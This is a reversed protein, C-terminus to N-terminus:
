TNLMISSRELCGDGKALLLKGPLPSTRFSTAHPYSLGMQLPLTFDAEVLTDSDISGNTIETAM